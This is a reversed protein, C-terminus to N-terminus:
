ASGKPEPMLQVEGGEFVPMGDDPFEDYFALGKILPVWTGAQPTGPHGRKAIRRGDFVFYLEDQGTDSNRASVEEIFAAGSAIIAERAKQTKTKTKTM